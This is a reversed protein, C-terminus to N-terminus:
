ELFVFYPFTVYDVCERAVTYGLSYRRGLVKPEGSVVMWGGEAVYGFVCIKIMAELYVCV